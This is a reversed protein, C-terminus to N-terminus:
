IMFYQVCKIPHGLFPIPTQDVVSCFGKSQKEFNRKSQISCLHVQIKLGFLQFRSFFSDSM